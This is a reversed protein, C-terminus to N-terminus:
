NPRQGPELPEFRSVQEVARRRYERPSMDFKARFSRTFHSADNFGWTFAIQSINEVRDGRALEMRCRELRESLIFRMISSDESRFVKHLYGVTIGIADAVKAPDLEADQINKRVHSKIRNLMANQGWTPAQPAEDNAQHMTAAVLNLVSSSLEDHVAQNLRRESDLIGKCLHALLRVLESDYHFSHELHSRLNAVSAELEARPIALVISNSAGNFDLEYETNAEYVAMSGSMLGYERQGRFFADRTNLQINVFCLGDRSRQRVARHPTETVMEYLACKGLSRRRMKGVFNDSGCVIRIGDNASVTQRWYDLRQTPPVVETDISVAARDAWLTAADQGTSGHQGCSRADLMVQAM